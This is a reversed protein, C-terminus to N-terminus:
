HITWAGQQALLEWQTTSIGVVCAKDGAAGASIAYGSTGSTSLTGNLDITQGASAISFRLAGTTAASGNNGNMVCYQMGRAPNPLTYTVATAASAEQNITYGSHYTGGLTASSGTTVAVPAEGDLTNAALVQQDQQLTLALMVGTTGNPTTYLGMASGTSGVSWTQTPSVTIAGGSVYASGNYGYGQLAVLFNASTVPAPSGQTGAAGQGIFEPVGGAGFGQTVWSSITSTAGQLVPTGSFTPSAALAVTSGTGTTTAAIPQSSSNSGIVVASAPFAGGHLKTCTIANSGSTTCDGSIESAAPTTGDRLIGTGASSSNLGGNARALTGTVSTGVNVPAWSPPGGSNGQLFTTTTGLSGLTMSAQSAGGLVVQNLTLAAASTVLTAGSIIGTATIPNPTCTLPGSCTINTVTGGSTPSTWAVGGPAGSNATLVFGNTGLTTIGLTGAGTGTIVGGLAIASFDAGLGGQMLTVAANNTLIAASVNPLTFTKLSGAPGAVSFFGNGSGGNAGPLIGSVTTGLNVQNWSPSGTANGTLVLSSTGLSALVTADNAGNGVMVAGASLPGFSNTVTGGAPITQCTLDGRVWTATSCGSGGGVNGPQLNGTVGGAGSIALNIPALRAAPLTGSSINGANTTDTTASTAFALGNTKTVTVACGSSSADGTLAPLAGCGIAGSLISSQISTLWPPNSYTGTSLLVNAAILTSDNLNGSSDFSGLHGTPLTGISEALRGSAGSIGTITNGTIQNANLIGSGSYNLISSSGVTLTQGNNVGSTVQSWPPSGGGGGGALWSVQGSSSSTLVTTQGAPGPNIQAPAVIPATGPTCGISSEVQNLTLPTSSVPVFWYRTSNFGALSYQVNFCGGTPLGVGSIPYLSVNVVGNTIRLTLSGPYIIQRPSADNQYRSWSIIATGSPNSGNPGVITDSITTNPTQANSFSILCLLAAILYYLRSM